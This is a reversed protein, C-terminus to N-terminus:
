RQVLPANASAQQLVPQLTTRILEVVNTLPTIAFQNKKLFALWISQRSPDNAFEDTLGIPLQIPLAMERRTLTAAIAQALIDHDLTERSLIVWLDLYDKLRSNSM